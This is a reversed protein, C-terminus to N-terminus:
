DIGRLADGLASLLARSWEGVSGGASRARVGLRTLETKIECERVRSRYTLYADRDPFEEPHMLEERDAFLRPEAVGLPLDLLAAKAAIEDLAAARTKVIAEQITDASGTWIGGSRSDTGLFAHYIGNGPHVKWRGCPSIASYHWGLNEWHRPVWGETQTVEACRDALGMALIKAEGETRNGM